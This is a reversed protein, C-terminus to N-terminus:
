FSSHKLCFNYLFDFSMENEIVKKKRERGKRFDHRKHSMNFFITCCYLGFILIHCMRMPQQIGLAVFVCAGYTTSVVKGSCCHNCSRAETNRQVNTAQRTLEQM